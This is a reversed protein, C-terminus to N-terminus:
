DGKKGFNLQYTFWTGFQQRLELGAEEAWRKETSRRPYDPDPFLECLSILGDPKLIRRCECLVRVPDPIEPLCGIAFIRDISGDGFSFNYADDLMPVINSIKEREIRQKLYKLVAEQIDVAYVKGDPSVRKAVAKTYSGKGPGIEVVTMGANLQM